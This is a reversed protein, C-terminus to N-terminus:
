GGPKASKSLEEKWRTAEDIVGRKEPDGILYSQALFSDIAELAGPDKARYLARARLALGEGLSPFEAVLQASCQKAEAPVPDEMVFSECYRLSATQRMDGKMAEKYYPRAARLGQSRYVAEAMANLHYDNGPAEELAVGLDKAAWDYYGLQMLWWGREARFRANRPWFRTAQSAYAFASWYDGSQAYANSAYNMLTGSPAMRSVETLAEKPLSDPDLRTLPYGAAEGLVAGLIPNNKTRAAAYAVANTMEEMSGGWNPQASRIREYVVYYSDPDVSLCRETAMQRLEGSSQRGIGALEYCAVSLRPEIELAKLYLPIAQAFLQGMKELQGSPTNSVSATGREAWGANKYHNALAAHAFASEPALKLWRQAVVGASSSKDFAELSRFIQERQSQDDYHAKLLAAFRRELDASGGSSSLMADIQPLSWAPKRLLSCRGQAAGDSWHNGPLDPYAKCRAEEDVIGDAKKARAWYDAWQEPVQLPSAQFPPQANASMSFACALAALAKAAPGVSKM